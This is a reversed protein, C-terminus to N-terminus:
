DVDRIFQEVDAGIDQGKVHYQERWAVVESPLYLVKGRNGCNGAVDYKFHPISYRATWQDLTDVSVGLIEAATKKGVPCEISVVKKEVTLHKKIARQPRVTTQSVQKGGM